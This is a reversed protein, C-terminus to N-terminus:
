WGNRDDLPEVGNKGKWLPIVLANRSVTEAPRIGAEALWAKVPDSAFVVTLTAIYRNATTREDAFEVGRIMTTLRADDIPPVRARDEAPVMQEILQKVARRQAE